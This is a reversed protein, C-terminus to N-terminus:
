SGSIPSEFNKLSNDNYETSFSLDQGRLLAEIQDIEHLALSLDLGQPCSSM